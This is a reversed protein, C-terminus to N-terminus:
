FGPRNVQGVDDTALSPRGLHDGRVHYLTDVRVVGVLQGGFWLYNSWGSSSEKDAMLQNQGAYLYSAASGDGRRKGSRQGLGNVLYQTGAGDVEVRALRNFGDYHFSRRSGQATEGIRNGVADYAYQRDADGQRNTVYGTLRNSAAEFRFTRLSSGDSHTLWNGNGDYGMAHSVGGRQLTGLRGAADYTITQSMAGDLRDTIAAIAGAGDYAYSLDELAAAPNDLLATRRDVRGVADYHNRYRTGNGLTLTTVGGHAAYTAGAVVQRSWGNGRVNLSTLWKGSYGYSAAMGDPYIVESVRGAMDHSIRLRSAVVAPMAPFEERLAVQGDQAYGLKVTSGAVTVTCLRGIGNACGDYELLRDDQGASLARTRGLADYTASVTVGDARTRSTVRAPAAYTFTTVGSDPSEQRWLRAFGDRAYRTVLGRPDTVAVLRDHASYQYTTLGGTGNRSTSRRGLADYTFVDREGKANTKELLNGNGDYRMRSATGDGETHSIMRGLEDYAFETRSLVEGSQVAAVASVSSTALTEGGSVLWLRLGAATIDNLAVSGGPGSALRTGAGAGVAGWLQADGESVLWQVTTACASQAWAITCPNPNATISGVLAPAVRHTGSGAIVSNAGGVPSIGHVYLLQGAQERRQAYTLPLSFRYQNGSAKCAAAVAPESALNARAAGLFVGGQGYAGRAYLHVDIPDNRHTSCAWGRLASGDAALGDIHGTVISPPATVTVAVHTTHVGFWEVGDQVMQWRFDYVGPTTPARVQAAFTAAAGPGVAEALALRGTGWVTNDNLAGLAYRAASTWTTNGANRMRLSINYTKGAEM